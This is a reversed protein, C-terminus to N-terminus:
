HRPPAMNIGLFFDVAFLAWLIMQFINLIGDLPASIRTSVIPAAYAVLYLLSAIFLPKDTRREWETLGEEGRTIKPRRENHSRDAATDTFVTSEHEPVTRTQPTETGNAEAM